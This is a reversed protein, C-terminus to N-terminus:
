KRFNYKRKKKTPKTSSDTESEDDLNIEDLSKNFAKSFGKLSKNINSKVVSGVSNNTWTYGRKDIKIENLKEAIESYTKNDHVLKCIFTIVFQEDKNKRLKRIGNDNLYTEYGYPANGIYDGRKRRFLVSKKVRESIMDSENEAKPFLMRFKFKDSNSNYTCDDSVSYIKIGKKELKDLCALAQLTNRSFRSAEYFLLTNGTYINRILKKLGYQKDMNRGSCVDRYVNKVIYGFKSAYDKCIQEQTELSTHGELYKSQNLSSVRCYITCFKTKSNYNDNTTKKSM